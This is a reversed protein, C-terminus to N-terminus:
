PVCTIVMIIVNVIEVLFSFNDKLYYGLGPTILMERSLMNFMFYGM